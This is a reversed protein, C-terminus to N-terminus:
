QKNALNVRAGSVKYLRHKQVSSPFLLQLSLTATPPFHFDYSYSISATTPFQPGGSNEPICASGWHSNCPIVFSIKPGFFVDRFSLVCNVCSFVLASKLRKQTSFTLHKGSNWAPLDSVFLHTSPSEEPTVFVLLYSNERM